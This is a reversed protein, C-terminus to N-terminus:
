STVPPSGYKITLEANEKPEDRFMTSMGVCVGDIPKVNEFIFKFAAEISEPRRALRGAALIKFVFVPKPIERVVACLRAPDGPLYNEYIPVEPGLLKEWEEPTRRINYACAMYFDTEWGKEEMYELTVPMHTNVGAFFGRDHLMKVLDHIGEMQGRKYAGDTTEGMVTASTPGCAFMDEFPQPDTAFRRSVTAMFQLKGGLERYRRLAELVAPHPETQFYTIGVQECRRLLQWVRHPTYFEKLAQNMHEPLTHTTGRVCNSGLVLRSIQHSAFPITPMAKAIPEEAQAWAVGGELHSVVAGATALCAKKLFDRRDRTGIEQELLGAVDEEKM